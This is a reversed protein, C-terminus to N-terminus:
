WSGTSISRVSSEVSKFMESALCHTAAVQINQDAEKREGWHGGLSAVRNGCGPLSVDVWVNTWVAINGTKELYIPGIPATTLPGVADLTVLLHIKATRGYSGSLTYACDLATNGGLSHGILCVAQQTERQWFAIKTAAMGGQTWPFYAKEHADNTYADFVSKMNKNHNDM